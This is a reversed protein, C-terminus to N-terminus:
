LECKIYLKETDQKTYKSFVLIITYMIIFLQTVISRLPCINM